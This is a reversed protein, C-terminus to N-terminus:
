NCQFLLFLGVTATVVSLASTASKNPSMAVLARAMEILLQRGFTITFYFSALLALCLLPFNPPSKSGSFLWDVAGKPDSIMALILLFGAFAVFLSSFPGFAPSLQSLQERFSRYADGFSQPTNAAGLFADNAMRETSPFFSVWAVVFGRVTMLFGIVNCVDGEQGSTYEPNESYLPLVSLLDLLISGITKRM